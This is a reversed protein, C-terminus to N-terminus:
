NFRTRCPSSPLDFGTLRAFAAGISSIMIHLTRHSIIYKCALAGKGEIASLMLTPFSREVTFLM